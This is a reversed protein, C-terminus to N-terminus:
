DRRLGVQREEIGNATIIKFAIKDGTHIEREAASIFCDHVLNLAEDLTPPKDKDVGQMNKKGVQNDLLPQLLAVSSGGARYTHKEMSGVPDYAYVVGNGNEDIGAQFIPCNNWIWFTENLYIIVMINSVYYPFFRKSYLMTSVMQAAEPTEIVRNHTYKYM